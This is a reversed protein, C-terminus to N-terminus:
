RFSTKKKSGTNEEEEDSQDSLHSHLVKDQDEINSLIMQSRVRFEAMVRALSFAPPSTYVQWFACLFTIPFFVQM